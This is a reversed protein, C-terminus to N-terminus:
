LRNEARVGRATTLPLRPDKDPTDWAARVWHHAPDDRFGMSREEGRGALVNLYYLDYGPAAASPGHYGRPILVVDMHGVSETLNIIGDETYLRQLGFGAGVTREGDRELRATEFYYIEELAVEDDRFEDHKHPPYSSWNGEPTLVEVACLRDAEFADPALFNNIQRSARGAGRIEVPVDEARGYAPRLRRRAEAAPLAFRGGGESSIRVECDRPVYAFDTVREFVHARGDIKFREGDCEVMCGGALPLVAMERSGTEVVLEGLPSIEIVRLATFEWGARRPTIVVPDGDAAAMGRPLYLPDAM